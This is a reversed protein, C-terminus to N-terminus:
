RPGPKDIGPVHRTGDLVESGEATLTAIHVGGVANDIVCQAVQDLWALEIKLQDRNLAFGTSRLQNLLVEQNLTYAQASALIILIQLRVAARNDLM